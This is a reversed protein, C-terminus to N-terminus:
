SGKGTCGSAKLGPKQYESPECSFGLKSFLSPMSAEGEDDGFLAWAHRVDRPM